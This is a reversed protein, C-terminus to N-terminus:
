DNYSIFYHIKIFHKSKYVKKLGMKMPKGLILRGIPKDGMYANRNAGM